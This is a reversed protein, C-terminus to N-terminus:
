LNLYKLEDNSLNNIYLKMNNLKGFINNNVEGIIIDTNKDDDIKILNDFNRNIMIEGNVYVKINNNQVAVTYTNWNQLLINDLEIIPFQNNFPSHLYKLIISLKNYKANYYIQPSDGIKIIPKDKSYNSSWYIEGGVSPLFMDWTIILSNNNNPLALNNRKTLKYIPIVKNFYRNVNQEENLLIIEKNTIMQKIYTVYIYYCCLILLLISLFIIINGYM